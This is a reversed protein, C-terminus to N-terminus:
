RPIVDLHMIGRVGNVIERAQRPTVEGRGHAAANRIAIWEHVAHMTQVDLRIREQEVALDILRRLSAAQQDTIDVQKRLWVELASIASIVAARFEKAALLRSAEELVGGGRDLVARQLAAVLYELFDKYDENLFDPRRITSFESVSFPVKHPDTTIVIVDVVDDGSIKATKRGKAIALEYEARTWQSGLEVVVIASRDILAEIKANINSGPTIVDDATVPVFGAAEVAPFVYSRYISLVSLPVSFFCLRSSSGRPLALERLPAEDTVRSVSIINSKQYESLERFLASLIDGYKEKSGFINIVKVGRRDFRAVDSPSADVMVCYAPRRTRGLRNSVVSWIQRFDPDDLSYGFLVATKTILQNSLFTSIIPYNSLFSDYDDETVILRSPHGLDGHLKLISVGTPSLNISLQEENILTTLHKPLSSYSKELLYDFNTTCILDFSIEAFSKHAKGPSAEFIHLAEALKEVLKARGFEHQYASIADLTGSATFDILESGLVKGLDPWLPM